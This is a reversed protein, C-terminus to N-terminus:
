PTLKVRMARMDAVKLWAVLPAPTAVMKSVIRRPTGCWIAYDAMAVTGLANPGQASFASHVGISAERSATRTSGAAFVNFCSSACMHAVHTALRDRRVIEAITLAERVLGGPSNLTVLGAPRHGRRLTELLNAFRMADDFDIKGEIIVTSTVRGPPYDVRLRAASCPRTLLVALAAGLVVNFRM